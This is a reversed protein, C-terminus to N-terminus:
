HETVDVPASTLRRIPGGKKSFHLMLPHPTVGNAKDPDAPANSINFKGGAPVDGTRSEVDSDVPKINGPNPLVRGAFDVPAGKGEDAM